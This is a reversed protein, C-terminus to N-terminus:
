TQTGSEYTTEQQKKRVSHIRQYHQLLESIGDLLPVSPRYGMKFFKEFSIPYNRRELDSGSNEFAYEFPRLSYIAEVLDKKTIEIEPNGVNYIEGELRTWNQISFLIAGVMDKVHIFQRVFHCEYVSLKKGSVVQSVFDNILNGDRMRASAGFGGAFRLVINNSHRYVMQEAETKTKGYVSNPHLPSKEDVLGNQNGYNSITSAFLIAAKHDRSQVVNQTTLVNQRYAETPNAECAPYGVLGALHIICDYRQLIRSSELPSAVDTRIHQIKSSYKLVEPAPPLLDLLDVADAVACLEPALVSGVYGCGGTIAIKM